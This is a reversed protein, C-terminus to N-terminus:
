RAGTSAPSRSCLGSSDDVRLCFPAGHLISSPLTVDALNPQTRLDLVPYESSIEQQIIALRAGNKFADGVYQHGDTREGPLAVFMAGRTVQRSDVAAEAIVANLM